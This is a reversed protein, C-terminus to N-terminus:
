EQRPSPGWVKVHLAHCRACGAALEGYAAARADTAEAAAARDALDHVDRELRVLTDTAGTNRPLGERKLPAARLAKAGEQWRSTSPVVLGEVMNSLARQHELMHGVIGGLPRSPEAPAAPM